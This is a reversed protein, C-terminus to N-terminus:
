RRQCVIHFRHAPYHAPLAPGITLRLLLQLHPRCRLRELRQIWPLRSSSFASPYVYRPFAQLEGM